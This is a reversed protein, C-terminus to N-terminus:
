IQPSLATELKNAVASSVQPRLEGGVITRRRDRIPRCWPALLLRRSMAQAILKHNNIDL